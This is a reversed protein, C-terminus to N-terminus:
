KGVGLLGLSGSNLASPPPVVPVSSLIIQEQFLDWRTKKDYIQFAELDSLTRVWGYHGYMLENVGTTSIGTPDVGISPDATTLTDNGNLTAANTFQGDVFYRLATGSKTFGLLHMEGDEISTTCHVRTLSSSNDRHIFAPTSEGVSDGHTTFKWIPTSGPREAYTTDGNPADDSSTAGSIWVFYSCNALNSLIGQGNTEIEWYNDESNPGHDAGELGTTSEIVTKYNADIVRSGPKIRYRRPGVDVFKSNQYMFCFAMERALKINQVRQINKPAKSIM